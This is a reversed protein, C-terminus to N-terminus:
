QTIEQASDIDLEAEDHDRMRALRADAIGEAQDEDDADIVFTAERVACSSGARRICRIEYTKM